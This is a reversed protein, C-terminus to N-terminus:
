QIISIIPYLSTSGDVGLLLSNGVSAMSVTIMLTDSLKITFIIDSRRGLHINRNTTHNGLSTHFLAKSLLIKSLTDIFLGLHYTYLYSLFSLPDLHHTDILHIFIFRALSNGVLLNQALKFTSQTDLKSALVNTFGQSKALLLLCPPM